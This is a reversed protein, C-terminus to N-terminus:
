IFLKDISLEESVEGIVPNQFVKEYLVSESGCLEYSEKFNTTDELQSKQWAFVLGDFIVLAYKDGITSQWNERKFRM